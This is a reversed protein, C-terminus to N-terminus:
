FPIDEEGAQADLEDAKAPPVHSVAPGRPKAPAKPAAPPKPKDGEAIAARMGQTLESLKAKDVTPKPIAIDCKTSVKGNYENEYINVPIEKGALLEPTDELDQAERTSIDFGCLALQQAAFRLSKQTLYIYATITEEEGYPKVVVGVFPSGSGSVGVYHRVIKAKTEGLAIM